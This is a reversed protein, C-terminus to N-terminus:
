GTALQVCATGCPTEDFVTSLYVHPTAARSLGTIVCDLDHGEECSCYHGRGHTFSDLFSGVATKM